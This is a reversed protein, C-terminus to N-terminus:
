EFGAQRLEYMQRDRASLQRAAKEADLSRPLDGVGIITWSTEDIGRQPGIM